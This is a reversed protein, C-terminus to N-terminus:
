LLTEAELGPKSGNREVRREFWRADDGGLSWIDKFNRWIIGFVELRARGVGGARFGKDKQAM